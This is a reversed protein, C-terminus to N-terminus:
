VSRIWASEGEKYEYMAKMRTAAKNCVFFGERQGLEQTQRDFPIDTQIAAHDRCCGGLLVANPAAALCNYAVPDGQSSLSNFAEADVSIAAFVGLHNGVRLFAGLRDVTIDSVRERFAEYNDILLLLPTFRRDKDKKLEAKRFELEDKLEEMYREIEPASVLYRSAAGRLSGGM